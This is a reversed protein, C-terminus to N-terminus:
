DLENLIGRIKEKEDKTLNRAQSLAALFVDAKGDGLSDV